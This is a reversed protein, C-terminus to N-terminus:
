APVVEASKQLWHLVITCLVDPEVPKGIHDDMGAALCVDRDEDFANATLALIPVGVMGPFKRIARTAELGNIVPMQVDMLILAYGGRSAKEVAEQGNCAVDPALGADELLFLMVERNVPEDEALLVRAGPFLRALAKRPSEAPQPREAQSISTARRLRVTAWFTSGQGEESIVGADGGMLLAIRRSIILGLGTGGYKRTMSGDAQTFARFLRAQQETSIGIGQDSIEIRLLVSLSDEEAASARVTIQGRESFKIANGIFNLLIQRLRMADGCLLDPLAPDIHWSLSLGKGQAPADQIHMADEIAEALSFDKEELTLRDSEIKSIDLIDNIVSLLHKAARQSKNLWDIQKPDTARRLVLDTMGMIGNMPTRLEHSMNALFISKARNAAEADDKAALLESTRSAVLEELHLQYQLIQAATRKHDTIDRMAVQVAPIGDYVISISRVEVDITTGDQKIFKEEIMPLGVDHDIANKTRALVIQRFDPHVFDLVPRGILDQASKAGLMKIAAPNVYLLIGGRHVAISEPSWDILTHYREESVRFEKTMTAALRMARDRSTALLWALLAMLLSLGTGAIAIQRDATSGFIVKFDDKASMSLTWTHGAIVMYENAAITAPHPPKGVDDSRYLLTAASPEVGDYIASALGSPNEGYLSAILDNMRFSASVWGTLHTRRRDVSDLSQGKSYLPLFMVFAPQTDAGTDVALQLKGSITAMGSDRAKEMALRRVPDSWPDFGIYIHNRGINPERQVIPAYHERQGVPQIAYDAFGLRRMAEVHSDKRAAPVWEVVGISQLGSFNADLQLSDVYSHFSNRDSKTTVALLSQVGRLMQEYAAMRQEIHSVSERLSFDFQLRLQNRVAQREHDWVLWTVGLAAILVLWPLLIPRIRTM